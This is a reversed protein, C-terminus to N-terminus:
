RPWGLEVNTVMDVARVKGKGKEVADTADEKGMIAYQRWGDRKNGIFMAYHEGSKNVGSGENGTSSAM